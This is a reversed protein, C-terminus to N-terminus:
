VRRQPPLRQRYLGFSADDKGEKSFFLSMMKENDDRNSPPGCLLNVPERARIRVTCVTADDGPM